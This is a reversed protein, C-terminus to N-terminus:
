NWFVRDQWYEDCPNCRFSNIGTSNTKCEIYEKECEKVKNKYYEKQKKKSKFYWHEETYYSCDKTCSSDCYDDMNTRWKGTTYIVMWGWAYYSYVKKCCEDIFDQCESRWAQKYIYLWILWLLIIVVSVIIIRRKRKM